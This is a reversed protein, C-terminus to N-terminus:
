AASIPSAHAARTLYWFILSVWIGYYSFVLSPLAYLPHVFIGIGLSYIVGPLAGLALFYGVKLCNLRKLFFYSFLGFTLLALYAVPLAIISAVLALRLEIELNFVNAKLASLFILSLSAPIVGIPSAIFAM